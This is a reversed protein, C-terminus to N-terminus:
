AAQTAPQVPMKPTQTKPHTLFVHFSGPTERTTELDESINILTKKETAKLSMYIKLQLNCVSEVM